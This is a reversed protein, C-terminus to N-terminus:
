NNLDRMAAEVPQEYVRAVVRDCDFTDPLNTTFACV